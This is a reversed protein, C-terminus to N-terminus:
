DRTARKGAGCDWVQRRGQSTSRGLYGNDTRENKKSVSRKCSDYVTCSTRETGASLGSRKGLRLVDRAKLYSAPVSKVWSTTDLHHRQICNDENFWSTRVNHKHQRAKNAGATM